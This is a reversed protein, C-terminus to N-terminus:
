ANVAITFRVNNGPLLGNINKFQAQLEFTSGFLNQKSGILYLAVILLGTGTIVFLGVKFNKSIEM